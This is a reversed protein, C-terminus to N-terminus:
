ELIEVIPDGHTKVRKPKVEEERIEENEEAM